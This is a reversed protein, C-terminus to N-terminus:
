WQVEELMEEIAMKVREDECEVLSCVLSVQDVKGNKEFLSPNYKWLELEILEEESWGLEMEELNKWDISDKFIAMTDYRPANLMSYECLATEGAKLLAETVDERRVVMRKQVPSILYAKAKSYMDKPACKKYMRIEKGVREQEILGMAVLQESARTVSTKTLVLAESADSKLVYPERHYLMYLFLAQTAPMMKGTKVQKTKKYSESLAMGLFPLYIQGPLSLFPVRNKILADRQPKNIIDFSYAVNCQMEETYIERQKKLAIIGFNEESSVRIVVFSMGDIEVKYMDRNALYLALQPKEKIIELSIDDGLYKKLEHLM